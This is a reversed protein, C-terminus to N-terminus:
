ALVELDSVGFYLTYDEGDMLVTAIEVDYDGFRALRVVEGTKGIEDDTGGVVHPLPGIKVKDGINV